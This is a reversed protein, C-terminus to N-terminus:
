PGKLPVLKINTEFDNPKWTQWLEIRDPWRSYLVLEMQDIVSIRNKFDGHIDGGEWERCKTKYEEVWKFQEADLDLDDQKHNVSIIRLMDSRMVNRRVMYQVVFHQNESLRGLLQDTDIGERLMRRTTTDRKYLCTILNRAEMLELRVTVYARVAWVFFLTLVSLVLIIICKKVSM